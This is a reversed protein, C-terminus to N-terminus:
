ADIAEEIARQYEEATLPRSALELTDTDPRVGQYFVAVMLEICFETLSSRMDVDDLNNLSAEDVLCFSEVGYVNALRQAMHISSIAANHCLRRNRDMRQVAERWEDGDIGEMQMRAIRAQMTYISNVYEQVDCYMTYVFEADDIDKATAIASQLSQLAKLNLHKM